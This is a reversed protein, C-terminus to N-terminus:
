PVWLAGGLVFTAIVAAQRVTDAFYAPSTGKYATSGVSDNPSRFLLADFRFGAYALLGVMLARNFDSAFVLLVTYM